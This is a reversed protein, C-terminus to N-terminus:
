LIDGHLDYTDVSLDRFESQYMRPLFARIIQRPGVGSWKAQYPDDALAIMGTDWEIIAAALRLADDSPTDLKVPVTYERAAMVHIIRVYGGKVKAVGTVADIDISDFSFRDDFNINVTRM